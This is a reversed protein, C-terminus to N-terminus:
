KILVKEKSIEWFREKPLRCKSHDCLHQMSYSKMSPVNNESLSVGFAGDVLTISDRDNKSTNSELKEEGGLRQWNLSEQDFALMKDKSFFNPFFKIGSAQELASLPVAFSSLPAKPHIQSNPMVFAGIVHRGSDYLESDKRVDGLIVKYYHTPVSLLRPVLGLLKHKMVLGGDEADRIPLYLPGTVVYVDSCERRMEQIFREFRAWYDQNFGKGVQPAVNSLYFSEKMAQNSNKNNSAPSMHGRDYGSRRYQSLLARFDEDIEDDEKYHVGKRSVKQDEENPLKELVWKPNRSRYDIECVFNSFQRVKSTEPAGYALAPHPRELPKYTLFYTLASGVSIGAAFVLQKQTNANSFLGYSQMADIRRQKYEDCM